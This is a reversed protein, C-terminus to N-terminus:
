SLTTRARAMITGGAILAGLALAILGWESAAPINVDSCSVEACTADPTFTVNGQCNSEVVDDTCIGGAHDCCAGSPVPGVACDYVRSIRFTTNSGLPPRLTFFAEGIILNYPVGVPTPLCLCSKLPCGPKGAAVCNCDPGFCEAHPSGSHQLSQCTSAICEDNYWLLGDCAPTIGADIETDYDSACTEILAFPADPIFTFLGGHTLFPGNLGYGVECFECDDFVCPRTCTCANTEGPAVCRGPCNFDLPQGGGDLGPECEEGPTELVGNGCTGAVAASPAPSSRRSLPIVTPSEVAIAPAPHDGSPAAFAAVTLFLLSLVAHPGGPGGHSNRKM